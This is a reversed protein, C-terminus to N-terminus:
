SEVDVGDAGVLLALGFDYGVVLAFEDDDPDFNAM